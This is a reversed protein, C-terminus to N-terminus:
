MYRMSITISKVENGVSFATKKYSPKGLNFINLSPNNSMAGGDESLDTKGNGNLDHRVAIGYVGSAPLPVCFSMTGAKAPTEIRTLWKGKELWEEKTGRYSQVRITGQSAKIQNVTVLVAPGGGARCKGLDNGIKQRYQADAPAALMIGGAALAMLATPLFKTM